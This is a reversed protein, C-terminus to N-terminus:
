NWSEEDDHDEEESWSWSWSWSGTASASAVDDDDDDTSSSSSSSCRVISWILCRAAKTESEKSVCVHGGRVNLLDVVSM